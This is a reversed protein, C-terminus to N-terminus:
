NQDPPRYIPLVLAAQLYWGPGPVLVHVRLDSRGLPTQLALLSLAATLASAAAEAANQDATDRVVTIDGVGHHHRDAAGHAHADAHTQAHGHRAEDIDDHAHGALKRLHSFLPTAVAAAAAPRHRHLPGAGWAFAAALSQMLLIAIVYAALLRLLDSGDAPRPHSPRKPM